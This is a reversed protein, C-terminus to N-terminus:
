SYEAGALVCSVLISMSAVAARVAGRRPRRLDGVVAEGRGVADFVRRCRRTGDDGRGRLATSSTRARRPYPPAPDIMMDEYAQGDATKVVMLVWVSLNEM